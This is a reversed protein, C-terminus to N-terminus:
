GRRRTRARLRRPHHQLVRADVERDELDGAAADEALAEAVLAVVDGDHEVHLGVVEAQAADVGDLLEGVDLRHGDLGNGAVSVGHEIGVVRQHPRHAPAAGALDDPEAHSGRAGLDAVEDVVVAAAAALGDDELRAVLAVHDDDPVSRALHLEGPGVQQRRGEAAPGQHVHLVRQRRGRGREGGARGQVVDPLPQPGERRVVVQGGAPEVLDLDLADVDDDVVAVVRRAHPHEAVEDVPEALAQDLGAVEALGDRIPTM